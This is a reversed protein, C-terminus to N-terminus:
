NSRHRRVDRVRILIEVSDTETGCPLPPMGSVTLQDAEIDTLEGTDINYCHHHAHTASDFYRRAPDITIEKVLGCEGFTNLTNYVTAKSVKNGRRRLKDVIQGVSMHQPKRLLVEAVAIRQSTPLIAHKKLMQLIKVSPM